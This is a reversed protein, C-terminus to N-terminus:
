KAAKTQQYMVNLWRGNRKMYLSSAWCPTPVPRDGCVIDQTEWYTLLATNENLLKLEFHDLSYSKVQCQATAVGEV